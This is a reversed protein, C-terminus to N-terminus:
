AHTRDLCRPARGADADAIAGEDGVGDAATAWWPPSRLGRARWRRTFQLTTLGNLLLLLHFFGLAGLSLVLMLAPLLLLSRAGLVVCADEDPPTVRALGLLPLSM